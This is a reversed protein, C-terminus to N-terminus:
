ILCRKGWNKIRVKLEFLKVSYLNQLKKSVHCSLIRACSSILNKISSSYWPSSLNMSPLVKTRFFKFSVIVENKISNGITPTHRSNKIRMFIKDNIERVIKTANDVSRDQM